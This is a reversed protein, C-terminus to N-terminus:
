SSKQIRRLISTLGQPILLLGVPFLAEAVGQLQKQKAYRGKLIYAKDWDYQPYRESLLRM